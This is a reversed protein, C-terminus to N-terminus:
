NARDVGGPGIGSERDQVARDPSNPANSSVGATTPIASQRGVAGFERATDTEESILVPAALLTTQPSVFSAALVSAAGGNSGEERGGKRGPGMARGLVVPFVGPTESLAPVVTISEPPSVEPVGGGLIQVSM